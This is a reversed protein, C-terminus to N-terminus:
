FSRRYRQLETMGGRQNIKEAPFGADKVKQAEDLIGQMVELIQSVNEESEKIKSEKLAKGLPAMKGFYPRM